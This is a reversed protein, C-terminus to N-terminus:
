TLSICEPKNNKQVSDWMLLSQDILFTGRWDDTNRLKIQTEVKKREKKKETKYIYTYKNKM